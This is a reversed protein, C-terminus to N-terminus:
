AVEPESGHVPCILCRCKPQSKGHTIHFGQCFKCQYAYATTPARDNACAWRLYKEAKELSDFKMKKNKCSTQKYKRFKKADTRTLTDDLKAELVADRVIIEIDTEPVGLKRLTRWFAITVQNTKKNAEQVEQAQKWSIRTDLAQGIAARMAQLCHNVSRVFSPNFTVSREM